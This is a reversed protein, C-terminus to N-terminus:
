VEVNYLKLTNNKKKFYYKFSDGNDYNVTALVYDGQIVELSVIKSTFDNDDYDILSIYDDILKVNNNIIVYDKIDFFMDTLEYIKDIKIYENTNKMNYHRDYYQYNDIIVIDNKYEDKNNVIYDLAYNTLFNYNETLVNSYMYDSNPIIYNDYRDIYRCINDKLENVDDSYFLTKGYYEEYAFSGKLLLFMIMGLMVTIVLICIPLFKNKM